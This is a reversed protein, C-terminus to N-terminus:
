LEIEELESLSYKGNYGITNYIEASTDDINYVIVYWGEAENSEVDNIGMNKLNETTLVYVKGNRIDDLSIGIAVLEDKISDDESVLAGKDAGSLESQAKEKMEDTANNPDVGLDFSANEVYERAKTQILLMNTKLAELKAEKITGKGTYVTIGALILLVIITIVLVVLTIGKQNNRIM